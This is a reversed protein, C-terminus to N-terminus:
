NPVAKARKLFQDFMPVTFATEGHIPSYIMGKRILGSRTPAVSEVKRDLRGAIDGSKHPGPGLEAMGFLYSKEATTLQDFRVTFFSEDLSAIALRSSLKKLM